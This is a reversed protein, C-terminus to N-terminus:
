LTFFLIGNFTVGPAALLRSRIKQKFFYIFFSSLFRFCPLIYIVLAFFLDSLFYSLHFLHKRHTFFM